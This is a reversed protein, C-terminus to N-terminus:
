LNSTSSVTDSSNKSVETPRHYHLLNQLTDIENM